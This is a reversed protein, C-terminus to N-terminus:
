WIGKIQNLPVFDWGNKKQCAVLSWYEMVCQESVDKTQIKQEDEDDHEWESRCLTFLRNFELRCDAYM